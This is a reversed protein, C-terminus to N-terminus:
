IAGDDTTEALIVLVENGICNLFVHLNYVAADVYIFEDLFDLVIVSCFLTVIVRLHTIVNSPPAIFDYCGERNWIRVFGEEWILHLSSKDLIVIQRLGIGHM